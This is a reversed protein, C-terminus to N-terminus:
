RSGEASPAAVPANWVPLESRETSLWVQDIEVASHQAILTVRGGPAKKLRLVPYGPESSAWVWGVSPLSKKHHGLEHRERPVRVDFLVVDHPPAAKTRLRVLVFWSGPPLTFAASATRRRSPDLLLAAGGSALPDEIKSCRRNCNSEDLEVVHDGRHGQQPPLPTAQFREEAALRELLPKPPVYVATLLRSKTPATGSATTGSTLYEAYYRIAFPRPGWNRHAEVRNALEALMKMRVERRGHSSRWLLRTATRGGLLPSLDYRHVRKEGQEESVFTVFRTNAPRTARINSFMPFRSLPFDDRKLVVELLTLAVYVYLAARPLGIGLKPMAHRGAVLM